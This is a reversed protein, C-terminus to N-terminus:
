KLHHILQTITSKHKEKIVSYEVFEDEMEALQAKGALDRARDYDKIERIIQTITEIRDVVSRRNTYEPPADKIVNNYFIMAKEFEGIAMACDIPGNSEIFSIQNNVISDGRAVLMNFHNDPSVANRM